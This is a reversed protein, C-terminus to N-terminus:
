ESTPPRTSGSVLLVRLRIAVLEGDKGKRRAGVTKEHKEKAKGIGSVEFVGECHPCAHRTKANMSRVLLTNECYPCDIEGECRAREREHAQREKAEGRIRREEERQERARAKEEAEAEEQRHQERAQKQKEERLREYYRKEKEGTPDEFHRLMTTQQELRAIRESVGELLSAIRAIDKTAHKAYGEIQNVMLPLLIWAIALIIVGLTVLFGTGDSMDNFRTRAGTGGHGM